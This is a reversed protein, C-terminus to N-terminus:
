KNKPDKGFKEKFKAAYVDPASMKLEALGGSKFLEDYSKAALAEIREKVKNSERAKDALTEKVSAVPKLTNLYSVTSDWDSRAMKKVLEKQALTIKRLKLAKEALEELKQEEDEEESLKLQNELESLRAKLQENEESLRAITEEPTETKEDDSATTKNDDDDLQVSEKKSTADDSLKVEKKPAAAKGAQSKIKTMDKLKPIVSDANDSLQIIRNNQDYLAVTIADPNAGIDCISAEKALWKTVTESEQGALLLEPDDSTELPHAGMSAMKLVGAEVKHYISVAFEDKDDFVPTAFIDDGEVTIDEWYGLPLIQNKNNGDPRIHNFLLLPNKEFDTLVAGSTLMRFGHSNLCSNTLRFRKSSKLMQECKRFAFSM